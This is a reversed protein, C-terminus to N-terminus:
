DKIAVAPPDEFLLHITVPKRIGSRIYEGAIVLKNEGDLSIPETTAPKIDATEQQGAFDRLREGVNVTRGDQILGEQFVRRRDGLALGRIMSFLAKSAERDFRDAPLPLSARAARRERAMRQVAPELPTTLPIPSSKVPRPPKPPTINPSAKPPTTSKLPSPEKSAPHQKNPLLYPNEVSLQDWATSYEAKCHYIYAAEANGWAVQAKFHQPNAIFARCVEAATLYPNNKLAQQLTDLSNYALPREVVTLYREGEDDDYLLEMRCQAAIALLGKWERGFEHTIARQENVSLGFFNSAPSQLARQATDPHTRMSAALAPPLYAMAGLDQLFYNCLTKSSLAPAAFRIEANNAQYYANALHALHEASENSPEVPLITPFREENYASRVAALYNQPANEYSSGPLLETTLQSAQKSNVTTIFWPM